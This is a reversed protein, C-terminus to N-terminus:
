SLMHLEVNDKIRQSRRAVRTAWCLAHPTQACLTHVNRAFEHAQRWACAQHHMVGAMNRACTTWFTSSSQLYWKIQQSYQVYIAQVLGSSSIRSHRGCSRRERKAPHELTLSGKSRRAGCETAEGSKACSMKVPPPHGWGAALGLADLRNLEHPRPGRPAAGRGGGAGLPPLV